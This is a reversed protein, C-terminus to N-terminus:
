MRFVAAASGSAADKVIDPRPFETLAHSEEEGRELDAVGFISGLFCPVTSKGYASLWLRSVSAADWEGSFSKV